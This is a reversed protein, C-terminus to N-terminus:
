KMRNKLTKKEQIPNIATKFKEAAKFFIRNSAPINVIENTRFNKGQYAPHLSTKFSGFGIIRINQNDKVAEIIGEFVIDITKSAEETSLEAKKSVFNILDSKGM